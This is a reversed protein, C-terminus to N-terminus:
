LDDDSELEGTYSYADSYEDDSDNDKSMDYDLFQRTKDKILNIYETLKFYNHLLKEKLKKNEQFSSELSINLSKIETKLRKINRRDKGNEREKKLLSSVNNFDKRKLSLRRCEMKLETNQNIINEVENPDNGIPLRKKQVSSLEEQLRNIEGMLKRVSNKWYKNIEKLSNESLTASEFEGTVIRYLNDSLKTNSKSFINNAQILANVSCLM